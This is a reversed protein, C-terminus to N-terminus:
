HNTYFALCKLTHVRTIILTRGTAYIVITIVFEKRQELVIKNFYLDTIKSPGCSRHVLAFTICRGTNLDFQNEEEEPICYDISMRHNGVTPM